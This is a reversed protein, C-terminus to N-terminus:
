KKSRLLSQLEKLKEVTIQKYEEETLAHGCAKCTIPTPQDHSRTPNHITTKQGAGCNPCAFTFRAPERKPM